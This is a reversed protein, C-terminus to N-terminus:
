LGWCVLYNYSPFERANLVTGYFERGLWCGVSGFFYRWSIGLQSLRALPSHLYHLHLRRLVLRVRIFRELKRVSFHSLLVSGLSSSAPLPPHDAMTPFHEGPATVCSNMHKLCCRVTRRSPSPFSPTGERVGVTTGSKRDRLRQSPM